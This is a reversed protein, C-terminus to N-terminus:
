AASDVERSRYGVSTFWEDRGLAEYMAGRRDNVDGEFALKSQELLHEVVSERDDEAFRSNLTRIIGSIERASVVSYLEGLHLTEFQNVIRRRTTADIRRDPDARFAVVPTQDLVEARLWRTSLLDRAPRAYPHILQDTEATAFRDNLLKNCRICAPILNWPDIALEHVLTIPVFHDLTDAMGYQCYSCLQHLANNKIADYIRRAKSGSRSLQGTYLKQLDADSIGPIPYLSKKTQHLSQDHIRDQFDSSNQTFAPVASNVNAKLEKDRIGNACAKASEEVTCTPPDVAWM